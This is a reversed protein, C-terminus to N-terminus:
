GGVGRRRGMRRKVENSERKHERKNKEIISLSPVPLLPLPCVQM